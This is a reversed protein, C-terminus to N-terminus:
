TEMKLVNGSVETLGWFDGLAFGQRTVYRLTPFKIFIVQQRTVHCFYTPFGGCKNPPPDGKKRVGGGFGGVM